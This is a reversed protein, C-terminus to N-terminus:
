GFASQQRRQILGDLAPLTRGPCVEKEILENYTNSLATKQSNWLLLVMALLSVPMGAVSAAEPGHNDM